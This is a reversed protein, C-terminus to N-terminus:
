PRPRPTAAATAPDRRVDRQSRITDPDVEYGDLVLTVLQDIGRDETAEEAVVASAGAARLAPLDSEFRTRAVVELDPKLARAASVVRRATELDDDAVALLRAARVGARTLEHRRTDRAVIRQV